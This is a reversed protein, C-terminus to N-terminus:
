ESEAYSVAGDATNISPSVRFGAFTKLLSHVMSSDISSSSRFGDINEHFFLVFV